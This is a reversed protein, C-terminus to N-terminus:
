LRRVLREFDARTDLDDLIAASAVEIAALPRARARLERLPRDPPLEKVDGLLERGVVIPHGHRPVGSETVFPALWGRAPEGLRRWEAALAAFVEAPVLPVDVPALCLDRDPRAEVAVRVSGTRGASWDRNVVSDVGPPLVAAVAKAAPGVVVLPRTDGLSAGAALLLELPSGPREPRLRVLAKPEGLRESAGAALLVLAPAM